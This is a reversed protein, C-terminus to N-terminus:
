AAMATQVVSRALLILTIPVALALHAALLSMLSFSLSAVLLCGVGRRWREADIAPLKLEKVVAAVELDETKGDIVVSGYLIIDSAM